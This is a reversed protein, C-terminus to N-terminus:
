NVFKTVEDDLQRYRSKKLSKTNKVITVSSYIEEASKLINSITQQPLPKELGFRDKAFLGLETQNFQSTANWTPPFRAHLICPARTNQLSFV